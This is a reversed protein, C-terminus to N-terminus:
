VAVLGPLLSRHCYNEDPCSCMLTVAEGAEVRKRLAALSEISDPRAAMEAHFRRVYEDWGINGNKIDNFLEISPALGKDWESIDTKRVGRPWRRMTLLRWGDDPAAPDYIRKLRIPM